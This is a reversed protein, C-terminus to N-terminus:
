KEEKKAAAEEGADLGAIASRLIRMRTNNSDDIRITVFRSDPSINVITGCVGGVTVIADNKKLGGLLDKQDRTKKMEGRIFILFFVVMCLLLPTMPSVLLDQWGPQQGGKQAAGEALLFLHFQALIVQGLAMFSGGAPIDAAFFM